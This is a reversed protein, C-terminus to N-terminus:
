RKSALMWADKVAVVIAAAGVFFTFAQVSAGLITGLKPILQDLTSLSGAGFALLAISAVLFGTMEKATINVLGVILGLLVLVIAVWKNSAWNWSAAQSIGVLLSIIAGILFAWHTLNM